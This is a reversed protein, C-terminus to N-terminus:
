ETQLCSNILDKKIEFRDDCVMYLEDHITNPYYFVQVIVGLEKSKQIAPVFDSDGSVILAKQIQGTASLAILDITLLNDVRKQIFKGDHFSLKGLRIEFRSLKKLKNLFKMMNSYRTKEEETPPNSQYPMCNYYYVRFLESKSIEVLKQSFKQFDLKVSGFNKLIKVLYGGDIFVAAKDFTM